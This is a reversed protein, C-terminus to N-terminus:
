PSANPAAGNAPPAPSASAGRSTNATTDVGGTILGFTPNSFEPFYRFMLLTVRPGFVGTIPIGGATSITAAYTSCHNQFEGYPGIGGEVGAYSGAHARQAEAAANQAGRESVARPVEVYNDVNMRLTELPYEMAVAVKGDGGRVAHTALDSGATEIKVVNHVTGEPKILSEPGYMKMTATRPGAEIPATAILVASSVESVIKMSGDLTKGAEIEDLGQSSGTGMRMIGRVFFPPDVVVSAMDILVDGVTGVITADGVPDYGTGEPDAATMDDVFDDLFEHFTRKAYENYEEGTIGFPAGGLDAPMVGALYQWADAYDAPADPNLMEDTVYPGSAPPAAPEPRPPEPDGAHASEASATPVESRAPPPADAAPPHGVIVMELELDIKKGTTSLRPADGTVPASPQDTGTIGPDIAQDASGEYDHADPLSVDAGFAGADATPRMQREPDPPTTFPSAAAAAAAAAILAAIAEEIGTPM